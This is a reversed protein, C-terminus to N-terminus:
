DWFRMRQESSAIECHDRRGFWRYRNNAILRYAADRAPRPVCAFASLLAWPMELRRAVGLVADSRVLRMEGEILVITEHFFADDREEGLLRRATQSELTAFRFVGRPDHAIIWRVVGDCLLCVGDFLIIANTM